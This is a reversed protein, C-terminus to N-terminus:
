GSGSPRELLCGAGSMQPAGGECPQLDHKRESAMWESMREDLSQASFALWTRNVTAFVPPFSISFFLNEQLEKQSIHVKTIHPLFNFCVM